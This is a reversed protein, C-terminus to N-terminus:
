LAHSDFLSRHYSYVGHPWGRNDSCTCVCCQNLNQCYTRDIVTATPEVTSCYPFHLSLVSFYFVISLALLISPNVLTRKLRHSTATRYDHACLITEAVTIVVSLTLAVSRGTMVKQSHVPCAHFLFFAALGLLIYIYPVLSLPEDIM